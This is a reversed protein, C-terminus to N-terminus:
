PVLGWAFDFRHLTRVLLTQLQILYVVIRFGILAVQIRLFTFLIGLVGLLVLLVFSRIRHSSSDFRGRVFFYHISKHFLDFLILPLLLFLLFVLFGITMCLLSHM